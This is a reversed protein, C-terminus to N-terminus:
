LFFPSDKSIVQGESGGKRGGKGKAPKWPKPPTAKPANGPDRRVSEKGQLKYLQDRLMAAREFELAEAAALMEEELQRTAEVIDYEGDDPRIYSSVTREAQIGQERLGDELRRRVTKPVIGHKENYEIQRARRAATTALVKKISDTYNDAYLIVMGSVNRAARGATQILSRESRLFGEKDADMVAVLSVEPLDL